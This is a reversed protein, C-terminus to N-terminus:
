YDDREQDWAKEVAGIIDEVTFDLPMEVDYLHYKMHHDWPNEGPWDIDVTAGESDYRAWVTFIDDITFTLETM